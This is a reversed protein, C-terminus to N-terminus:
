ESLRDAISRREELMTRIDSEGVHAHRRILADKLVENAARTVEAYNLGVATEALSTWGVRKLTNGSLRTKLLEVIQSRDPLDYHLVDDFRRFLAPDLLDPHNTAAIVLSHSKDQEIM